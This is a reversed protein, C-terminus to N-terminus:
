FQRVIRYFQQTLIDRHYEEEQALKLFFRRVKPDSVQSALGSYRANAEAEKAIAFEFIAKLQRDGSAPFSTMGNSLDLWEGGSLQVEVDGARLASLAAVHKSEMKALNMFLQRSSIDSTQAGWALYSDRAREEWALAFRVAGALSAM